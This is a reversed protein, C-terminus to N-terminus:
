SSESILSIVRRAFAEAGFEMDLEDFGKEARNLVSPDNLCFRIVATQQETEPAFWGIGHSELLAATTEVNFYDTTIMFPRRAYIAEAVTNAGAKGAAIDCAYLYVDMESVFGPSFLVLSPYERKLADCTLDLSTTRGGVLVVQVPLELAAIGRILSISGIGEGGLNLMVTFRDQLGLRERAEQKTLRSGSFIPRIPFPCVSVTEAPQGKDIIMAASSKVPTLFWRYRSCAHISLVSFVDSNYYFFPTEIGTVAIIRSIVRAAIFNTAVIIDPSFGTHWRLFRRRYFGGIFDLFREERKRKEVGATYRRELKPLRLFFRWSTRCFWQWMGAKVVHFFNLAEAHCGLATFGEAIASAPVAHGMGATIYFVATRKGASFNESQNASM